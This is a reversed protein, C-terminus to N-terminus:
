NHYITEELAYNDAATLGHRNPNFPYEGIQEASDDTVKSVKLTLTGEEGNVLQFKWAGFGLVGDASFNESEVVPSSIGLSRRLIDVYEIACRLTEDSFQPTVDSDNANTDTSDM